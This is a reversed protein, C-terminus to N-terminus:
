SLELLIAAPDDTMFFIDEALISPQPQVYHIVAGLVAFLCAVGLARLAMRELVTGVSQLTTGGVRAQAAVRTTFGYPATADRTDPAQRAASVLRQWKEEPTKM